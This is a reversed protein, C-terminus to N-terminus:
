AEETWRYVVAQAWTKTETQEIFGGVTVYGRDLYYNVRDLFELGAGEIIRYDSERIKVADV